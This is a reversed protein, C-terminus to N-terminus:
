AAAVVQQDPYLPAPYAHGMKARAKNIDFMWNIRAGSANRAEEWAEVHMTLADQSPIRRDLCQGGLVGIEIEAMNLWSAHKPTHHIELKRIIRRAEEPPFAEYLNKLRHTSLNDMVVRIKEADPFHVDVLDRMCEAFDINGRHGTVKAHRWSHSAGVFVFINATGNRCYEYDIRRPQGPKAKVPVRTEGVLQYPKEDFCVVPRLPDYDEAYLDLVDEMREVFESDVCPICWMKHQWPKIKKEGLRRRVTDKSISDHEVLRVFEGALLEMTWKARGTPPESCAVAVLIAEERGTLKRKGGPRPSESLARELGEEVFRKKVRFVTSTGTKLNKAIEGDLTGRDCALLIQARKVVRVKKTGGALLQELQEREADTLEVIYRVNMIEEPEL